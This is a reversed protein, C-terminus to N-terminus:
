ISSTKGAVVCNPTLVGKSWHENISQVFEPRVLKARELLWDESERRLYIGERNTGGFGSTGNLMVLLNSLNFRGRDIEPVSQIGLKALLKNRRTTSWFRAAESDFVDFAIFWDPLRDYFSTHKAYCWEGYLV